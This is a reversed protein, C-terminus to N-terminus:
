NVNKFIKILKKSEKEWNFEKAVKQLNKCWINYQQKDSFINEIIEALKKPNHTNTIYGIKNEIIFKSVIKTNSALIPTTAQVYDFIKNPLSYTYNLNTNKDLSLGLDAIKTYEMLNEYSMKDKFFVKNTVNLKQAMSKLSEIVDGSGIIYLVFGNLYQMMEVAEEAGRDINIGSGQLIIMKSKGKIEEHLKNNIEANTIIPAINKIVHVKVHYKQIYIKAIEENVTYINKLKPFINKEIFLWFSQQFPRNILEPVETFLEHSDYVLKKKFLKSVIYNPLLTDLDNALLIDKKLFLLIFFLRLNYEAYFLFGNNFYLKIRKTKYSRTLQKSNKLKRGILLIDFGNNFLTTCSKHVRQDTVLDNTASVIIRKM